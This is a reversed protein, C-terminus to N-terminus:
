YAANSPRPFFSFWVQELHQLSKFNVPGQHKVPAGAAKELAHFYEASFRALFPSYSFSFVNKLEIGRETGATKLVEIVNRCLNDTLASEPNTLHHDYEPITCALASRSDKDNAVAFARNRWICNCIDMIFGNFHTAAAQDHTARM